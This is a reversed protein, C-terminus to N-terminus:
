GVCPDQKSFEKETLYVRGDPTIQGTGILRVAAVLIKRRHKEFSRVFERHADTKFNGGEFSELSERTVCLTVRKGRWEVTFPLVGDMMRVPKQIINPLNSHFRVGPGDDGDSALFMVGENELAHVIAALGGVENSRKEGEIDRITSLGL